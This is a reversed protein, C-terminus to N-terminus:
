NEAEWRVTAHNWFMQLTGTPKGDESATGIGLEMPINWPGCGLSRRTELGMVDESFGQCWQGPDGPFFIAKDHNAYSERNDEHSKRAVSQEQLDKDWSTTVSLSPWTTNKLGAIGPQTRIARTDPWRATSSYATICHSSWEIVEKPKVCAINYESSETCDPARLPAINRSGLKSGGLPPVRPHLVPQHSDQAPTRTGSSRMADELTCVSNDGAAVTSSPQLKSVSLCEETEIQLWGPRVHERDKEKRPKSITTCAQHM